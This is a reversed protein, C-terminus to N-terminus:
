SLREAGTAPTGDRVDHMECMRRRRISKRQEQVLSCAPSV